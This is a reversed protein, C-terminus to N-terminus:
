KRAERGGERGERAERGRGRGGGGERRALHRVRRALEMRGKKEERRELTSRSPCWTAM